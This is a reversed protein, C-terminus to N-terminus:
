SHSARSQQNNWNKIVERVSTSSRACDCCPTACAVFWVNRTKTVVSHVSRDTGVVVSERDSVIRVDTNGCVSCPSLMNKYKETYAKAQEFRKSM